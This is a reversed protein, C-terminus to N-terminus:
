STHLPIFFCLWGSWIKPQGKLKLEKSKVCIHYHDDAGELARYRPITWRYPLYVYDGNPLQRVDKTEVRHCDENGCCDSHTYPDQRGTYWDHAQAPTGALAVLVLARRM